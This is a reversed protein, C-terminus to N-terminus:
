KRRYVGVRSGKVRIPKIDEGYEKKIIDIVCQNITWIGNEYKSLTSPTTGIIAALEKQTLHYKNRFQKLSLMIGGEVFCLGINGTRTEEVPILKYPFRLM